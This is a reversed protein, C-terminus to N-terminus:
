YQQRFRAVRQPLHKPSLQYGNRITQWIAPKQQMRLQGPPTTVAALQLTKTPNGESGTFPAEADPLPQTTADSILSSPLLAQLTAISKCGGLALVLMVLVTSSIVPRTQRTSYETNFQIM